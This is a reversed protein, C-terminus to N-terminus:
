QGVYLTDGSTYFWGQGYSSYLYFRLRYFGPAISGINQSYHYIDSGDWNLGAFQRSHGDYAGRQWGASLFWWWFSDGYRWIEIRMSISSNWDCDVACSGHMKMMRTGLGADPGWTIWGDYLVNVGGNGSVGVWAGGGDGYVQETEGHWTLHPLGAALMARPEATLNNIQNQLNQDNNYRTTAEASVANARATAENSVATARAAAEANVAIVRANAEATVSDVINQHTHLSQADITPGTVLLDLRDKTLYVDSEGLKGLALQGQDSPAQLAAFAQGGSTSGVRQEKLAPSFVGEASYVRGRVNTAAGAKGIDVQPASFGIDINDNSDLTRRNGGGTHRLFKTWVNVSTGAVVVKTLDTIFGDLMFALPSAVTFLPGSAGFNLIVDPSAARVHIGSCPVIWGGTPATQTSTVVVEAWYFPNGSTAIRNLYEFAASLTTFQSGIGVTVALTDSAEIRAATQVNTVNALSDVVATALLKGKNASNPTLGALEEATAGLRPEVVTFGAANSLTAKVTGDNEDWYYLWTASSGTPIYSFSKTPIRVPRGHWRVMFPGVTITSGSASIAPRSLIANPALDYNATFVAYSGVNHDLDANLSRDRHAVPVAAWVDFVAGPPVPPSIQLQAGTAFPGRTITINGWTQTGSQNWNLEVIPQTDALTTGVLALEVPSMPRLALHGTDVLEEVVWKYGNNTYPDNNTAGSIRVYDGVQVNALNATLALVRGNLISDIPTSALVQQDTNLLNANGTDLVGTVRCQSVQKTVTDILLFFRVLDEKTSTTPLGVFVKQLGCDFVSTPISPTMQGIKGFCAEKRMLEAYLVDTNAMVRGLARTFIESSLNEGPPPLSTGFPQGIGGETSTNLDGGVSIFSQAALDFGLAVAATGGTVAILGMGGSTKTRLGICGGDDYAQANISAMGANLESLITDFRALHATNASLAVTATGTDSQVILTDGATVNAFYPYALNADIDHRRRNGRVFVSSPRRLSKGALAPRRYYTMQPM